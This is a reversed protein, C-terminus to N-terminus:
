PQEVPCVTAMMTLWQSPTADATRLYSDRGQHPALVYGQDAYTVELMRFGYPPIKDLPHIINAFFSVSDFTVGSFVGTLKATIEPLRTPRSPKLLAQPAPMIRPTLCFMSATIVQSHEAISSEGIIALLSIADFRWGLNHEKGYPFWRALGRRMDGTLEVSASM